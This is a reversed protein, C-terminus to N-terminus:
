IESELLERLTKNLFKDINEEFVAGGRDIKIKGRSKRFFGLYGKSKFLKIEIPLLDFINKVEMCKSETEM